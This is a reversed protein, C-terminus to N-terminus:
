ARSNTARFMNECCRFATTLIVLGRFDDWDQTALIGGAHQTPVVCACWRAATTRGRDDAETRPMVNVSLNAAAAARPGGLMGAATVATAGKVLTRRTFKTMMCDETERIENRERMAKSSRPFCFQVAGAYAVSQFATRNEFSLGASFGRDNPNFISASLL